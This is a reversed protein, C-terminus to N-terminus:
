LFFRIPMCRLVCNRLNRGELAEAAATLIRDYSAVSFGASTYSYTHTNTQTSLHRVGESGVFMWPMETRLRPERDIPRNRCKAGRTRARGRQIYVRTHTEGKTHISAAHKLECIVFPLCLLNNRDTRRTGPPTIKRRHALRPGWGASGGGNM